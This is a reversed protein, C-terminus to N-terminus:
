GGRRVIRSLPRVGAARCDGAAGFHMASREGRFGRGRHADGCRQPRCGRVRHEGRQIRARRHVEKRGRRPGVRQRRRHQRHRHRGGGASPRCPAKGDRARRARRQLARRARGSDEHSAGDAARGRHRAAFTQGRGCQGGGAGARSESHPSQRARQVPYGRGGRRLARAHHLRVPRRRGGDRRAAASRGHPPASARRLRPHIDGRAQGRIYRGPAAQRHFSHALPRARRRDQRHGRGGGVVVRGAQRRNCGSAQPIGCPRAQGRCRRGQRRVRHNALGRNRRHPVRAALPRSRIEHARRDVADAATHDDNEEEIKKTGIGAKEIDFESAHNASPRTFEALIGNVGAPGREASHRAAHEARVTGGTYRRARAEITPRNAEIGYPYWDPGIVEKEEEVLPQLWASSVKPSGMDALLHYAYEKARCLAKYMSLAVWPDRQYVDNRIVVTHMIPYIKTRRFYDKEVEPYNPFLRRVKPSGRRFALPNNATMMFDIEGRELLDGLETGPPAQSLHIDAPLKRGVRDARGQVWEVDSPKVGYEHQLLGRMYVAATMTYEPVGGRKGKLDAPTKIGKDTNIFFYGHRFVRSPFAPIAVFPAKGTSVLTAYNSLSMESIEFENFQLMRWFTDPPQSAIYNLEIGEPQVSGDRLALTRDYPGCAFTLRLKSM